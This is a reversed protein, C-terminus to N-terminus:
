GLLAAVNSGIGTMWEVVIPRDLAATWAIAIQVVAVLDVLLNQRLTRAAPILAIALITLLTFTVGASGPAIMGLLFAANLLLFVVVSLPIAVPRRVIAAVLWASLVPAALLLGTPSSYSAALQTAREPIGDLVAGLGDFATTGFFLLSLASVTVFAGISPFAIVLMNAARLGRAPPRGHRLFPSALVAVTAFLVGTPDSLVSLMLLLGARFGSETNGWNVFRVLDAIALAFFTLALFGALNETAFYAFLPNAALAIVLITGTSRPISRQAIIECVKQLLFGAAIAAVLGLGLRGLPNASALLVTVHPYLSSLWQADGRTWEIGAVTEILRANPSGTLPPGLQDLVVLLAIPLSFALRLMWRATTSRPFPDLRTRARRPARPHRGRLPSEEVVPADTPTSSM